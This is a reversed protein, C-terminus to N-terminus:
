PPSITAAPVGSSTMALGADSVPCYREPLRRTGSGAIRREGVPKIVTRPARACLRLFTSTRKGSPTIVQTVPTDPEPLLESTFPM